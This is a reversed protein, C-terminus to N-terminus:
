GANLYHQIDHIIQNSLISLLHIQNELELSKKNKSIITQTKQLVDTLEQTGIQEYASVIHKMTDHLRDWDNNVYFQKLSPAKEHATLILGLMIQEKVERKDPFLSKVKKYDITKEIAPIM